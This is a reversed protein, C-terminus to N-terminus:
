KDAHTPATRNLPLRIAVQLGGGDTVPRPRATLAADHTTAISRVISLGLGVGGTDSGVRGAGRRFPEFLETVQGPDVRPGTNAVEVTGDGRVEVRAWGGATNHRVANTVLNTLLQGLLVPDGLVEVPETRLELTIDRSKAIARNREVVDAALQHLPVPEKHELGRDSRALLLLGDLLRESRRNADLLQERVTAIREPDTDSLGVQIATRQIALPTRLEHSANAVFRRQSEAAAELRALMDDFTGALETLEDRPGRMGIREHLNDWSLRRATGTIDRLPRLVRGAVWWGAAISAIALVVLSLASWLLLQQLAAGSSLTVVDNLESRPVTPLAPVTLQGPIEDARIAVGITHPLSQRMLLYVVTLLVAGFALFLGGYLATLRARVTLRM